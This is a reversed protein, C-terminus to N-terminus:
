WGANQPNLNVNIYLESQPIPYLYKKDDWVREKYLVKKFSLREVDTGEEKVKEIQVGYLKTQTESAIMWRRVDWFRHDEFAFEVRWENRVAKLFDEKGRVTVDPMSANRRVMNLAERASMALSADTYDPNDFAEVMSEAYTLLTEAYRYIIWHHKETVRNDTDFSTNEQIYKRLYYGTPTGGEAVPQADKGGVFTEIVQKKFSVGNVLVTKALRPDRNAYPHQPDFDPDDSEWGNEGLRVEYGKVTQFAEVLNQSPFVCNALQSKSRTGNVFRVPFNRQEFSADAPNMRFLIVEKSSLNNANQADLQFPHGELMILDYAAQASKKWLEVDMTPNHLKSAAYLLAKSKLAMAFPKTVRGIEKGPEANYSMPLHDEAMCVDCEDVIFQIVKAFPTKPISNAEATTLVQLPLPIDGYRKCLEFFYFARLLRAEYPFYALQKMWNDYNGNNAFRSFDVKEIEVIFSNAARIGKYLNWATDLPKIPSWIDSTFGQVAASLNGFEADDSGCDRMAGGVAGLDQPIYSYVNTLMKKTKDFYKYIGEKTNLNDTEDFDLYDCAGLVFTLSLLFSVIKKM